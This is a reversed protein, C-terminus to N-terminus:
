AADRVEAGPVRTGVHFAGDECVLMIRLGDLTEFIWVRVGTVDSTREHADGELRERCAAIIGFAARESIPIFALAM